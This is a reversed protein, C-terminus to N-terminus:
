NKMFRVWRQREDSQARREIETRYSAILGLTSADPEAKGTLSQALVLDLIPVNESPKM